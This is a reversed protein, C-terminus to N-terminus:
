RDGYLLSRRLVDQLLSIQYFDFFVSSDLVVSTKTSVNASFLDPHGHNYVWTTVRKGLKNNGSKEHIPIFGFKEWM